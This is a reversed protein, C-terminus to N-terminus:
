AQQLGKKSFVMGNNKFFERKMTSVNKATNTLTPYFTFGYRSFLDVWYDASKCNVHHHGRKGPPAFTMFVYNASQMLQMYNDEFKSDVHEVFECSWIMDVQKYTYPGQTFDHLIFWDDTRQLTFDGDIGYAEIGRARAAEVMGGTGCGVDLLTTVGLKNKAYLLLGVDIHTVNAHGGLHNPLKSTSNM